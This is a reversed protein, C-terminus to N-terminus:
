RVGQKYLVSQFSTLRVSTQQLSYCSSLIAPPSPWITTHCSALSPPHSERTYQIKNGATSEQRKKTSTCPVLFEGQPTDVHAITANEEEKVEVGLVQYKAPPDQDLILWELVAISYADCAFESQLMAEKVQLPTGDRGTIVYTDESHMVEAQILGLPIVTALIIIWQIVQFSLHVFARSNM